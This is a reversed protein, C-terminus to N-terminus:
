ISKGSTFTTARATQLLVPGVAPLPTSRGAVPPKVGAHTPDVVTFPANCPMGEVPATKVKEEYASELSQSVAAWGYMETSYPLPAFVLPVTIQVILSPHVLSSPEALSSGVNFASVAMVVCVM